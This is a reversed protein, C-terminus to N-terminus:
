HELICSERSTIQKPAWKQPKIGEKYNKLLKKKRILMNKNTTNVAKM